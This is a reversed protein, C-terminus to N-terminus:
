HEQKEAFTKKTRSRKKGEEKGDHEDKKEEHLVTQTKLDKFIESTETKLDRFVESITPASPAPSASLDIKKEILLPQKDDDELSTEVISSLMEYKVQLEFVKKYLIFVKCILLGILLMLLLFAFSGSGSSDEHFVKKIILVSEMKKNIIKKNKKQFRKPSFM